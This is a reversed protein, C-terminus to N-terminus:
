VPSGFPVVLARARLADLLEVLDARCRDAGVDFEKVVASVLQDTTRPEQLLSWVRAGVPNLSYYVGDDLHLIVVEGSVECAVHRPSAVFVAPPIPLPEQASM